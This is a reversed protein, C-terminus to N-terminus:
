LDEFRRAIEGSRATQERRESAAQKNATNATNTPESVQARHEAFRMAAAENELMQRRLGVLARHILSKIAGESRGMHAAIEKLSLDGGFRLLTVEAQDPPLMAIAAQLYARTEHREALAHPDPEDSALHDLFGRLKGNGGGYDTGPEDLSVVVAGAKKRGRDAILNTAIRLLWPLLSQGQFRYQPLYTVARVWTEAAIDEADEVSRTRFVAMRYVRGYYRRHLSAFAAEDGDLTRTVLVKDSLEEEASPEAQGSPVPRSRKAFMAWAKKDGGAEGTRM